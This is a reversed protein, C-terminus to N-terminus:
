DNEDEALEEFIGWEKRRRRMLDLYKSYASTKTPSFGLGKCWYDNKLLTKVIKRWSPAKGISELKYDSEDPIGNPYGRNMYWKIYVSIKNKYHESTKNPMTELISKAFSQWTHGNPLTVKSNGLINGMEKSYLQGTNAGAVRLVMKAWTTPEIIQYLWLSRRQTDGFPEDIRMQHISLGAKHMRDYLQNYTKNYKGTYRWIDETNWDYIPYVGWCNDVIKTTYKKGNYCHQSDKSIARYRNLSEQSRIGMFNACTKNDSYWKAFLPAFEEFMIGYYYFPFFMTDKISLKNKERVWIEAKSEEWATWEPEFQSCGNWTKIPVACWYPEIYNEYLKYISEIHSITLHFQCEWDVFFLAVKKNRKKAEEMVLHTLVTSDKGGSFSIIIKEFNDFTYKIRQVSADFVNETLYNKPM